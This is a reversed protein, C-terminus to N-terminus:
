FLTELVERAMATAHEKEQGAICADDVETAGQVLGTAIEIRRVRVSGSAPTFVVLSGDIHIAAGHDGLGISEGVALGVTGHAQIGLRTCLQRPTITSLNM